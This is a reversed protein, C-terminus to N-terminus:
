QIQILFISLILDMGDGTSHHHIYLDEPLSTLVQRSNLCHSKSARYRKTHKRSSSISTNRGPLKCKQVMWHFLCIVSTFLTKESETFYLFSYLTFVHVPHEFNTFFVM